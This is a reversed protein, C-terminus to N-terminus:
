DDYWYRGIILMSFRNTLPDPTPGYKTYSIGNDKLIGIYRSSIDIVRDSNPAYIRLNFENDRLLVKGDGRQAETDFVSREIVVYEKQAEKIEPNYMDVYLRHDSAQDKLLNWLYDKDFPM